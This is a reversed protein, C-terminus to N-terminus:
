YAKNSRLWAESNAWYQASEVPEEDIQWYQTMMREKIRPEKGKKLLYKSLDEVKISAAPKFDKSQMYLYLSEFLACVEPEHTELGAFNFGSILLRGKGVKLEFLYGFKRLTYAPQLEALGFKHVDFRDRAAKDNGQIIPEVKVPFDDLSIKDADNILRHFQFDILGKNPFLGLAKNKRIFGGFNHGRDWIVGKFRDQTAPLWYKEFPGFKSRVEPVRYLMFVDGGKKLHNLVETDFRNAIFLSKGPLPKKSKKVDPYRKRLDVEDLNFVTKTFNLKGSVKPYIWLQWSNLAVKKGNPMMLWCSFLAEDAAKLEPFKLNIIAIRRSGTEDLNINGLEGKMAIAKGKQSKLEWHFVAEGTLREDYNSLYVPVTLKTKEAFCFDKFEAALVTDANFQMFDEAKTFQFDDFCDLISNANEYRETDSLQFFNYGSLLSSRRVSELGQKWWMYQYYKSSEIGREYYDKKLGKADILKQLEGVWWPKLEPCYKNFKRDLDDIN